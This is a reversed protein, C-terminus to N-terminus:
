TKTSSRGTRKARQTRRRRGQAQLQRDIEALTEPDVPRTLEEVTRGDPLRLIGFEDPELKVLDDISAARERYYKRSRRRKGSEMIV